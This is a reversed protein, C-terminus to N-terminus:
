QSPVLKDLSALVQNETKGGVQKEIVVGNEDILFVTPLSTVGYANTVLSGRDLYLGYNINFREQHREVSGRGEDVNVAVIEVGKEKYEEYHDRLYQMKERCWVCYTQWFNLYVGQGRLQELEIQNGNIDELIFNPAEDDRDVIGREESFHNYFTYGIAAVMVLLIMSRIILRNRKM